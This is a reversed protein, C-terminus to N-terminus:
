LHVRVWLFRWSLEDSAFDWDVKDSLLGVEKGRSCGETSGSTMTPHPEQAMLFQFHYWSGRM